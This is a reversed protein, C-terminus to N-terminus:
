RVSGHGAFGIALLALIVVTAAVLLQWIPPNNHAPSARWLLLDKVQQRRSPHAMM